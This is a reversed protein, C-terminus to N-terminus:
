ASEGTPTHQGIWRAAADADRARCEIWREAGSGIEKKWIPARTKLYDM